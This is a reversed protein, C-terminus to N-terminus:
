TSLSRGHFKFTQMKPLTHRFPFCTGIATHHFKMLNTAKCQETDIYHYGGRDQHDRVMEVIM